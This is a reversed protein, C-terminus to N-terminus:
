KFSLNKACLNLTKLSYNEDFEDGEPGSNNVMRLFSKQLGVFEEFVFTLFIRFNEFITSILQGHDVKVGSVDKRQVLSFGGSNDDVSSPEAFIQIKQDKANLTEEIEKYTSYNYTFIHMFRTITSEDIIPRDLIKKMLSINQEPIESLLLQIKEIKAQQHLLNPAPPQVSHTSTTVTEM